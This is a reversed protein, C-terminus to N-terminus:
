EETKRRTTRRRPKAKPLFTDVLTRARAGEARVIARLSEFDDRLHESERAILASTDQVHRLIRWARYLVLALLVSLIIVAITTVVFFIDMKLVDSM